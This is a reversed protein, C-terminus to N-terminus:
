IRGKHSKRNNNKGKRRHVFQIRAVVLETQGHYRLMLENTRGKTRGRIFLRNGHVYCDKLGYNADEAFLAIISFFPIPFNKNNIDNCFAEEFNWNEEYPELTKKM